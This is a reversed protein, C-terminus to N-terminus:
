FLLNTKFRLFGGGLDSSLESHRLDRETASKHSPLYSCIIAFNYPHCYTLLSLYKESTNPYSM